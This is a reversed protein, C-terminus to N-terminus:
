EELIVVRYFRMRPRPELDRWVDYGDTLTDEHRSNWETENGQFEDTSEVLYRSGPVGAIWITGETLDLFQLQTVPSSRQVLDMGASYFYGGAFLLDSIHKESPIVDWHIGDRTYARANAGAAVLWGSGSAQQMPRSIGEITGQETWHMADSSTLVTNYIAIAVYKGAGYGVSYLHVETGSPASSWDLGDRSTYIVGGTIIIFYEGAFTLQAFSSARPHEVATWTVGDTSRLLMNSANILFIRNGFVVERLGEAEGADAPVWELGDESILIRESGTAVFMRPGYAVSVLPSGTELTSKEESADLPWSVISGNHAVAVLRHPSAALGTFLTGPAEHLTVWPELPHAAWGTGVIMTWGVFMWFRVSLSGKKM